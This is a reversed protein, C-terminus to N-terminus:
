EGTYVRMSCIRISCVGMGSSQWTAAQSLMSSFRLLSPKQQLSLCLMQQKLGTGFRSSGRCVTIWCPPRQQEQSMVLFITLPAAKPSSMVAAVLSAFQHSWSMHLCRTFKEPGRALAAAVRDESRLWTTSIFTMNTKYFGSSSLLQFQKNYQAQAAQGLSLLLPM